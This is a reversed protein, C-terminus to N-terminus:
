NASSPLSVVFSTGKGVESELFIEGKNKIIFEKCLNLGLGTGVEQNTGLTSDKMNFNFVSNKRNEDIGVGTDSITIQIKEGDIKTSSINIQGGENTFKIANSILNRVVTMLMNQDAMVAHDDPVQINFEIQKQRMSEMLVKASDDICSILNIAEPNVPIEETETRTWQLLNELLHHTENSCNYIHKIFEQRYKSDLEDHQVLLMQGLKLLSSMPGKLDHAIISMFKDKTRSLAEAKQKQKEYSYLVLMMVMCAIISLFLSTTFIDLRTITDKTYPLVIAPNYFEIVFLSSGFLILIIIVYIRNHSRIFIPAIFLLVIFYLAFPGAVGGALYWLVSIGGIFSILYPIVLNKYNPNKRGISYLITMIIAISGSLFSFPISTVLLLDRIFSLVGFVASGLLIANLTRDKLSFTEDSGLIKDIWM